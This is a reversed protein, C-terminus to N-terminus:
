GVPMPMVPVAAPSITSPEETSSPPATSVFRYGTWGSFGPLGMTTWVAPDVATGSVHVEWHLHPGTSRGTTGVLGILQDRKVKDGIAVDVRELHAFASFVGFGHDLVITQGRIALSGAWTVSGVAPARVVTGLPAMVDAGEHLSPVSGPEFIRRQGYPSSSPGVSPRSFRGNWLPPGTVENVLAQIFAREQSSQEPELLHVLAPDVELIVAQHEEAVVNFRHDRMVDGVTVRFVYDGSADAPFGAISTWRGNVCALPLVGGNLSLSVDPRGTSLTVVTTSGQELAETSLSISADVVRARGPLAPKVAESPFLGAERALDGSNAFVVEGARAWPVDVTWEQLVTRQARMVRVPGFDYYAIPLGYRTLWNPQALFTRRINQNVDLLALHNNIIIDFSVGQDASLSQHPPVQRYVQLWPDAGAAELNDLINAVNARSRGPDWQLVAKQFAQVRFGYLDFRHSIPYGLVPIGGYAVFATWFSAEEDDHVLFGSGDNGTQSFFHGNAMVFDDACTSSIGPTQSEAITLGAVLLWAVVGLATARLVRGTVRLIGDHSGLLRYAKRRGIM